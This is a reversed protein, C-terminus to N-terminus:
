YKQHHSRCQESSRTGLFKSMKRFIKNSRRAFKEEFMARHAKMYNVFKEEEERTWAGHNKQRYIREKKM